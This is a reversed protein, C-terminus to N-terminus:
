ISSKIRKNTEENLYQTYYLESVALRNYHNYMQVREVDNKLTRRIPLKSLTSELDQNAKKILSEM